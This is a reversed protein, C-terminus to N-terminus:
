GNGSSATIKQLLYQAKELADTTNSALLANDVSPTWTTHYSSVKKYSNDLMVHPKNLMVSLIHAHLRDSVVVKGRSLFKLGDMFRNYSTYKIDNARTSIINLWDEVFVSLNSPFEPLKLRQSEIDTRKLWVIDHTPEVPPQKMGIQMALM